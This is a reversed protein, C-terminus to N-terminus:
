PGGGVLLIAVIAIILGASSKKVPMAISSSGSPAVPVPASAQATPYTAPNPGSPM